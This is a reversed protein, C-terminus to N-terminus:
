CACNCAAPGEAPFPLACAETSAVSWQCARWDVIAYGCPAGFFVETECSATVRYYIAEELQGACSQPVECGDGFYTMAVCAGAQEPAACTEDPYIATARWRCVDPSDGDIPGDCDAEARGACILTRPDLEIDPDCVQMPLPGCGTESTAATDTAADSDATAATETAGTPAPRCAALALALWPTARRGKASM